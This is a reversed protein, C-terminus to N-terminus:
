ELSKIFANLGDIYLPGSEMFGGNHDGRIELLQKPERALDYVRQGLEFPVIEDQRSHIILKPCDVRSIPDSLDYRVRLLRRVPLLPYARAGVDALRPFCSELILGRPSFEAALDAAVAAGLSRGFFLIDGPAVNQREVLFRYAARADAYMGKEGASGGSRGYGRYDVIFVSLGLEHFLRISEIRHSINGANGHFFLVVLGTEASPVFWGHLRIGDATDLFVDSYALGAQSPDAIMARDPFFVMKKQFVFALLCVLVYVGALVALIIMPHRM